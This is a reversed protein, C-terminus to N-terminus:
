REPGVNNRGDRLANVLPPRLILEVTIPWSMFWTWDFHGILRVLHLYRIVRRAALCEVDTEDDCSHSGIASQIPRRLKDSSFSLIHRSSVRKHEICVTPDQTCTCRSQQRLTPVQVGNFVNNM